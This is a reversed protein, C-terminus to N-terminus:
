IFYLFWNFCIIYICVADSGLTLTTEDDKYLDSVSSEPCYIPGFVKEDEIIKTTNTKILPVDFGDIPAVDPMEDIKNLGLFDINDKDDDDIEEQVVEDPKPQDFCKIETIEPLVKHSLKRMTVRPIMTTSVKKNKVDPLMSFLGCGTQLIYLYILVLFFLCLNLIDLGRTEGQTLLGCIFKDCAHFNGHKFQSLM